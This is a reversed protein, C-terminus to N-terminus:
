CDPIKYKEKRLQPSKMKSGSRIKDLIIRINSLKGNILSYLMYANLTTM